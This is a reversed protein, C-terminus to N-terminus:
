RSKVTYMNREVAKESVVTQVMAIVRTEDAERRVGFGHRGFVEWSRIEGKVEGIWESGDRGARRLRRRRRL